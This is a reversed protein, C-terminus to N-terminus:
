ERRSRHINEHKLRRKWNNKPLISDMKTMVGTELFVVDEGKRIVANEGGIIEVEGKSGCPFLMAWEYEGNGKDKVVVANEDDADRVRLLVIKKNLEPVWYHCIKSFEGPASIITGYQGLLCEGEKGDLFLANFSPIYSACQFSKSIPTYGGIEDNLYFIAVKGQGDPKSESYASDAIQQPGLKDKFPTM